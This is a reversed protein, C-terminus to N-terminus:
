PSSLATGLIKWIWIRALVHEARARVQKHSTDHEEKWGRLETRGREAATLSSSGTGPYGGDAITITEGVAAGREREERAKPLTM